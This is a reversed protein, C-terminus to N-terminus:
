KAWGEVLVLIALLWWPIDDSATNVSGDAQPFSVSASAETGEEAMQLTDPCKGTISQANGRTTHIAHDLDPIRADRGALVGVFAVGRCDVADTETVAAEDGTTVIVVDAHVVEPSLDETGNAKNPIRIRGKAREGDQAQRSRQM